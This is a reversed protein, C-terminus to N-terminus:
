RLADALKSVALNIEREDLPAFGLRMAPHARGDFAFRRATQVLVGAKGAREAWADVDVSKSAKAWIALGGKPVHFVLVDGLRRRLAAVLADRRTHYVRKMKRVHRQIEADELLEAIARETVLDGQRDVFTRVEAMRKVLSQPGVVFGLRLGPALVKSLTGIYVVSGHADASALPLTPRGDYHFEHDYDDEFIAFAYKRALELLRMRRGAGLTATTPYQHHPTVYVARVRGAACAREVLDTRIGERDIPIPVVRAGTFRLAEWAPRYGMAEVLVVDDRQLVASAALFLGMTSGRTVILGCAARAIGRTRGLMEGLQERLKEDGLADGYRLSAASGLARRHVRAIVARPLLRLDPLGGLLALVGKDHAATPMYQRVTEDTVKLGGLPFGLKDPDRGNNKARRGATETADPLTSRVFTGRAPSTEIWGESELERLAALVTNRHVGLDKALTRSGPIPAGPVLRGQRIAAAIARSIAVFRAEGTAPEAALGLTWARM